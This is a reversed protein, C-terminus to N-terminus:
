PYDRLFTALRLGRSKLDLKKRINARHFSITKTSVGLIDAMQDSSLGSRTMACIAMETPTLSTGEVHEIKWWNKVDSELFAELFDLIARLRDQSKMALLAPLLSNVLLFLSRKIKLTDGQSKTVAVRMPMLDRQKAIRGLSGLFDGKQNYIGLATVSVSVPSERRGRLKVGYTRLRGGRRRGTRESYFTEISSPDLFDEPMKGIMEEQSFGLMASLAKNAYITRGDPGAVIFGEPAGSFLTESMRMAESLFRTSPSTPITNRRVASLVRDVVAALQEESVPKVLIAGPLVRQLWESAYNDYSDCILILRSAYYIDDHGYEPPTLTKQSIDLVSVDARHDKLASVAEELSGAHAVRCKHVTERCQSESDMYRLAGSHDRM